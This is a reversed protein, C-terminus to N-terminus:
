GADRYRTHIGYATHCWWWWWGWVLNLQASTHLAVRRPPICKGVPGCAVWLAPNFIPLTKWLLLCRYRSMTGVARSKPM